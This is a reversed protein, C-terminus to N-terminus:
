DLEHFGAAGADLPCWGPIEFGPWIEEILLTESEFKKKLDRYWAKSADKEAQTRSGAFHCIHKLVEIPLVGPGLLTELKQARAEAEQCPLKATSHSLPNAPDIIFFAIYGRAGETATPNSVLGVRHALQLNSFAVLTGEQIPIVGDNQEGSYPPTAFVYGLVRPRLHLSGGSLSSDFRYYYLLVGVINDSSTGEVHWAGDYTAGPAMVFERAKVVVQLKVNKTRDPLRGSERGRALNHTLHSLLVREVLPLGTQFVHIVAQYVDNHTAPDVHELHSVGLVSGEAFNVEFETPTWQRYWSVPVLQAYLEPDILTRANPMDADPRTAERLQDMSHAIRRKAVDSFVSSSHFVEFAHHPVFNEFTPGQCRNDVVTTRVEPDLPPLLEKASYCCCRSCSGM